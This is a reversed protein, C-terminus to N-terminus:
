SSRSHQTAIITAWRTGSLLESTKEELSASTAAQSKTLTATRRVTSTSQLRLTTSIRRPRKSRISLLMRPTKRCWSGWWEEMTICRSTREPRRLWRTNGSAGRCGTRQRKTRWGPSLKGISRTRCRHLKNPSRLKSPRSWNRYCVQRNTGLHARERSHKM